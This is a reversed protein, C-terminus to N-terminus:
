STNSGYFDLTLLGAVNGAALPLILSKYDAFTSTSMFISRQDKCQVLRLNEFEDFAEGFINKRSRSKCIAGTGIAGM